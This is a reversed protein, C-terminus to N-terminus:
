VLHRPLRSHSLRLAAGGSQRSDRFEPSTITRHRPPDGITRLDRIRASGTRRAKTDETTRTPQPPLAWGSFLATGPCATWEFGRTSGDIWWSTDGGRRVIIPGGSISLSRFSVCSLSM